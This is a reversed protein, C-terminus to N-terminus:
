IKSAEAPGPPRKRHLMRGTGLQRQGLKRLVFAEEPLTDVLKGVSLNPGDDAVHVFLGGHWLKIVM